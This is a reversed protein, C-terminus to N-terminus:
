NIKIEFILIEADTNGAHRCLIREIPKEPHPNKIPFRLLTYDRGEADKGEVPFSLYTGVYGSHRYYPSPIPTGYRHRYTLINESYRIPVSHESKDEYVLVYEGIAIAPDWIPRESNRDTAHLIEILEAKKGVAVTAENKEPSLCLATQVPSNFLLANPVNRIDGGIDLPRDAAYTPLLGIRRRMTPLLAKTLETYTLRCSPDYDSNWMMTATYVLDYFKGRYGLLDEDNATWTSVQGGIIGPKKSRTDYRPYHSSYLNGFVIQYGHPLLRDEIDVALEFYWTFDMMIIDKPLLPAADPVHYDGPKGPHLMDSWMMTGLGRSALHDHLRTVEEVFVETAKGQCRPCTGLDYGEDHGIHLYHEPKILDIVEDIIPLVYDYYEPHRPCANHSYFDSPPIDATAHDIDATETIPKKEALKPFATTLYQVHSLTQVEPVIELGFSRIYACIDRIEDHSLIDQGVFGYHAPRPWQGARYRRGAELWMENIRPFCDYHMTGSLQLIVANYRMPVLLERFLRYFFPLQNRNPLPLHVGRFAMFPTDDIVAYRLGQATALQLLAAAAYFFARPYAATVTVGDKDVCLTYGDDERAAYIFRINGGNTPLSIGMEDSFRETLYRAAGEAAKDTIHVGTLASFPLIDEGYTANSPIPYVTKELGEAAYLAINAIGIQKYDAQFRLTLRDTFHGISITCTQNGNAQEPIAHALLGGDGDLICLEALVTGGTLNLVLHDVFYRKGLDLVLDIGDDLLSYGDYLIPEGRFLKGNECDFWEVDVVEGYLNPHRKIATGRRYYAYRLTSNESFLNTIHM